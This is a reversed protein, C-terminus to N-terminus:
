VLKIEALVMEMSTRCNEYIGADDLSRRLAGFNKHLAKRVDCTVVESGNKPKSWLSRKGEKVEQFAEPDKKKLTIADKISEESVGVMKAIDLRKKPYDSGLGNQTTSGLSPGSTANSGLDAGRMEVAIASRQSQTLHRRAVNLSWVYEAPTKGDLDHAADVTWPELKLELCAKYRTRGDIIQGKYLEIPVSQGHKEIDDLLREYDERSAEPMALAAPHIELKPM